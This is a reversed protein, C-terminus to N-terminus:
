LAYRALLADILLGAWAERDEADVFEFRVGSIGAHTDHWMVDCLALVTGLRGAKLRGPTPGDAWAPLSQVRAGGVGLDICSVPQWRVTDHLELGVGEPPPWRRGDRRGGGMGSTPLAATPEARRLRELLGMAEDQRNLALEVDFESDQTAM